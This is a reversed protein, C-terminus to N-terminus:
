DENEREYEDRRKLIVPIIQSADDVTKISRTIQQLYKEFSLTKLVSIGRETIAYQTENGLVREEVVGNQILFDLNNRLSVCSLNTEYALRDTTLPENLLSELIVEYTELKSRRMV